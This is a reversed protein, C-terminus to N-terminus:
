LAGRRAPRVWCHPRSKGPGPPRPSTSIPSGRKWSASPAASPRPAARKPRSGCSGSTSTSTNYPDHVLAAELASLAQDPDGPQLIEAIATWADLARRRATEAFPEAWEYTEGDALEGRYLVAAERCAALKDEGAAQRARDLADGFAQLDTAILAPDLRYRGSANLIWMPTTLGAATRLMDRAKRLALNRQGTVRGPDAGPWLAEAIAEGSAGGPHVALYALLERAKRLGGSIEEGGATIRLPGLLRLRVPREGPAPPEGAQPERAPGPSAPPAPVPQAAPAPLASAERAPLRQIGAAPPPDPSRQGNGSATVTEAPHPGAAPPSGDAEQLVGAIAAAEAAGLTYLQLGDLDTAPPTVAEVTGDAAIDCTAGADWTGLMVVTVGTRRGTELIGALRRDSGQGAEAILVPATCGEDPALNEDGPEDDADQTRALTLLCSELEGLAADLTAPVSVGPISAPGTGPLLRAADGAPIIV